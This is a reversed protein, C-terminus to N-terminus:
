RPTQYGRSVPPSLAARPATTFPIAKHTCAIVEGRKLHAVILLLVPVIYCMAPIHQPSVALQPLWSASPEIFGIRLGPHRQMLGSTIAAHCAGVVPTLFPWCCGRRTALYVSQRRAHM